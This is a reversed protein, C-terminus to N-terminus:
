ERAGGLQRIRVRVQSRPSGDWAKRRRSSSRAAIRRPPRDGCRHCDGARGCLRRPDAARGIRGRAGPRVRRSGLRRGSASRRVPAGHARDALDRVSPWAARALVAGADTSPLRQWLGEDRVARGSAALALGADFVHLLVSRASRGITPTGNPRGSTGKCHELYWDALDSWM